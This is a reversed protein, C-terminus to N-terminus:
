PTLTDPLDSERGLGSTVMIGVAEVDTGEYDPPDSSDFTPMIAVIEPASILQGTQCNAMYYVAQTTPPKVAFYVWANSSGLAYMSGAGASNSLTYTGVYAGAKFALAVAYFDGAGGPRAHTFLLSDWLGDTDRVVAGLLRGAATGDGGYYGAITDTDDGPTWTDNAGVQFIVPGGSSNSYWTGSSVYTFYEFEGGPLYAMYRRPELTITTGSLSQERFDYTVVRNDGRAMFGTVTCTKSFSPFGPTTSGGYGQSVYGQFDRVTALETCLGGGTHNAVALRTTAALIGNTPASTPEIEWEVVTARVSLCLPMEDLSPYLLFPEGIAGHSNGWSSIRAANDSFYANNFTEGPTTNVAVPQNTGLTITPVYGSAGVYNQITWKDAQPLDYFYTPPEAGTDTQPDLVEEAADWDGTAFYDAADLEGYWCEQYTSGVLRWGLYTWNYYDGVATDPDTTPVTDSPPGPFGPFTIYALVDVAASSSFNNTPSAWAVESTAWGTASLTGTSVVYFDGFTHRTIYTLGESGWGYSRALPPTQTPISPCQFTAETHYRNSPGPRVAALAAGDTGANADTYRATTEWVWHSGYTPAPIGSYERYFLFTDVDVSDQNYDHTVGGVAHDGDQNAELTGATAYSGSIPQGDFYLGGYTAITGTPIWEGSLEGTRDVFLLFRRLGFADRFKWQLIAGGDQQPCTAVWTAIAGVEDTAQGDDELIEVVRDFVGKYTTSLAHTQKEVETDLTHHRTATQITWISEPTMFAAAADLDTGSWPGTMGATGSLPVVIHIAGQTGEGEGAGGPYWWDFLGAFDAACCCMSGIDGM